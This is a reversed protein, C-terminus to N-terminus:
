ERVELLECKSKCWPTTIVKTQRQENEIAKNLCIKSKPGQGKGRATQKNEYWATFLLLNIM